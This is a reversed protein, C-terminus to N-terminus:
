AAIKQRRGVLTFLVDRGGKTGARRPHREQSRHMECTQIRQNAFQAQVNRAQSRVSLPLTTQDSPRKSGNIYIFARKVLVPKPCVYPFSGFLVTKLDSPPEVSRHLRSRGCMTTSLSPAGSPTFFRMKLRKRHRKISFVVLKGLCARSLCVYPFGLFLHHM